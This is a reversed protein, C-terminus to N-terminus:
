KLILEIVDTTIIVVTDRPITERITVVTIQGQINMDVAIADVTTVLLGQDVIGEADPSLQNLVLLQSFM